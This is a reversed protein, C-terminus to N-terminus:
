HISIAGALNARQRAESAREEGYWRPYLLTGNPARTRRIWVVELEDGRDIIEQPNAGEPLEPM